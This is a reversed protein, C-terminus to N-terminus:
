LSSHDQYALLALGFQLEEVLQEATDSPWGEVEVLWREFAEGEPRKGQRHVTILFELWRRRDSPHASGTGKNAGSLFAELAPVAQEGVLTPLSLTPESLIVRIQSGKAAREVVSRAFDALIFNYKDIGLERVDRPVINTVRFGEEYLMLSLYCADLENAKERSFVIVNQQVPMARTLVKEQAVAHAWPTELAGLLARRFDAPDLSSELVLDQFVPMQKENM